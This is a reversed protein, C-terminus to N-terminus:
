AECIDSVLCWRSSERMELPYYWHAMQPRWCFRPYAQARVTDGLSKLPPRLLNVQSLAGQVVQMYISLASSLPFYLSALLLYYTCRGEGEEFTEPQQQEKTGPKHKAFTM